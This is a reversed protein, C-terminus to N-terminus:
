STAVPPGKFGFECTCFICYSENALFYFDIRIEGRDSLTTVLDYRIFVSVFFIM